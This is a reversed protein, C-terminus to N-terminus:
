ELPAAVTEVDSKDFTVVTERSFVEILLRVRSHSSMEVIAVHDVFPGRKIRVMTGIPIEVGGNKSAAAAPTPKGLARLEDIFPIEHPHQYESSHSTFTLLKKVGYTYRVPVWDYINPYLRVFVYNRFVPIITLRKHRGVPEIWYPFFCQYNQRQLNTIARQEQQPHTQAASWFAAM